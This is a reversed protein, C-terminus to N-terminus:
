RRPFWPICASVNKMHEGYHPRRELSRKDIMPISIFLFMLTISLPGIVTWWYSPDAALGLLYLGWWFMIEGFYNPHRSYAWLGQNLIEGPKRDRSLFRHLQKDANAEIGIAGCTILVAIGDLVGLSGTGLSLAPYLALCGLFVQVTPFLHIGTLDVLWYRRGTKNRLDSYRWDEHNLGEWRRLWNYTLRVAWITVLTVALFQRLSNVGTVVPNLAWYLAIPVPAVSWYPDYLSSNRYLTSFGFVVFTAAIDALGAILITSRDGFGCAVALAVGGAVVYSVTCVLISKLLTPGSEMPNNTMRKGGPKEKTTPFV